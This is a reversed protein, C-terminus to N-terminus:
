PTPPLPPKMLPLPSCPAPFPSRAPGVLFEHDHPPTNPPHQGVGVVSPASLSHRLLQTALSLVAAALFHRGAGVRLHAPHGQGGDPEDEVQGQACEQQQRDEHARLQAARQASSQTATSSAAQPVVGSTIGTSSGCRMQASRWTCSAAM